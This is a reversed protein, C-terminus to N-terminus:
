GPDLAVAVAEDFTLALGENHTARWERDGLQRHSRKDCWKQYSRAARILALQRNTTRALTASTSRRWASTVASLLTARYPHANVAATWSLLQLCLSATSRDDVAAAHTLAVKLTQEAGRIDNCMLCRAGWSMLLHATLQSEGSPAPAARMRGFWEHASSFDGSAAAVWGLVSMSLARTHVRDTKVLAQEALGRARDPEATLLAVCSEILDIDAEVATGTLDALATRAQHVRTTTNAVDGQRLAIEAAACLAGIDHTTQHYPRADLAQDLVQQGEGLKGGLMWFARMAAAIRLADAPSHVLYYEFAAMINPKEATIRRIWRPQQDTFWEVDATALLRLYYDAHRRRLIRHEDASLRRRGYDRNVKLMRFRVTTHHEERILLSKTVLADLQDYFTEVPKSGSVGYAADLDFSEEFVSLRAWLRQEDTRCLDYSWQANHDLSRHRTPVDRRRSGLVTFDESLRQALQDASMVRLRAAALTIALPLGQVQSCITQVAAVNHDALVFTPVAARAHTAFLGFAPCESAPDPEDADWYALPELTLVSEGDVGLTERSTALIRLRPCRILLRRVLRTVADILHECTDLVLLADRDRLFTVLTDDTTRDTSAGLHLATGIASRLSASDQVEALDVFCAGDAFSRLAERATAAALVTKGIGGAGTVTVMRSTALLGRLQASEVERGLCKQMPILLAEDGRAPLGGSRVVAAWTTRHHAPVQRIADALEAASPRSSPQTAMAGEILIALDGDVGHLRPDPLPDAAIRLFQTVLQEGERREFAAHGTVACFLTAGLGYVDSVETPGAGSVVEPATFAPSGSFSGSTSQFAGVIRAIGFDTLSPEGSEAILINAPKVDRHVIGMNHAYALADAIKAAIDLAQERPVRGLTGIQQQLSGSAYYPMVLFPHGGVTEGAQLVPVINPHGHLRRMARHEREFRERDQESTATLVKVAVVRDLETQTCCFVSGFGGQGVPSADHFGAANLETLLHDAVECQQSCM